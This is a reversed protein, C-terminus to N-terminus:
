GGNPVAEQVALLLFPGSSRTQFVALRQWLGARREFVPGSRHLFTYCFILCFVHVSLNLVDRARGGHQRGELRNPLCKQVQVFLQSILRNFPLTFCDTRDLKYADFVGKGAAM